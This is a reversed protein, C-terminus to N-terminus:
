PILLVGYYPQVDVGHCNKYSAVSVSQCGDEKSGGAIMKM